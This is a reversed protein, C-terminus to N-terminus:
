VHLSRKKKFKKPKSENYLSEEEDPTEDEDDDEVEKKKKGSEGSSNGKGGLLDAYRGAGTPACAEDVDLPKLDSVWDMGDMDASIDQDFTYVTSVGSGSKRIYTPIREFIGCPQPDDCKTCSYITRYDEDEPPEEHIKKGVKYGEVSIKGKACNQCRRQGREHEAGLGVVWRNSLLLLQSGQVRTIDDGRYKKGRYAVKDPKEEFPSAVSEPLANYYYVPDRGPKDVKVRGYWRLDVVSFAGHDTANGVRKDGAAVRDCGECEGDSELSCFLRDFGQSGDKRRFTISHCKVILPEDKSGNFLVPAPSDADVRLMPTNRRRSSAATAQAERSAAFGKKVKNLM